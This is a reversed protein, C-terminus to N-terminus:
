GACNCLRAQKKQWERDGTNLFWATTGGAGAGVAMERINGASILLEKSELRDLSGLLCGLYFKVFLGFILGIRLLEFVIPLLAPVFELALSNKMIQQNAAFSACSVGSFLLFGADVITSNHHLPSLVKQFVTLSNGEIIVNCFGLDLGLTVVQLCALAEAVFPSPIHMNM